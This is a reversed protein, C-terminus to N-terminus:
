RLWSNRYNPLRLYPSLHFRALSLGEERDTTPAVAQEVALLPGDGLMERADATRQPTVLYPHAGDALERSLELMKPRVALILFMSGRTRM